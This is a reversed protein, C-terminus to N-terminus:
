YNQPTGYIITMEVYDVTGASKIGRKEGGIFRIVSGFRFSFMVAKIIVM